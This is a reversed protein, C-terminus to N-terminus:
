TQARRHGNPSGPIAGPGCQLLAQRADRNPRQLRAERASEASGLAGMRVECEGWQKTQVLDWLCKRFHATPLASPPFLPVVVVPCPHSFSCALSEAGVVSCKQDLPM